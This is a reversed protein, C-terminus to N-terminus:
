RLQPYISYNWEPHFEHPHLNISAMQEDTPRKHLAYTGTDLEATVSLGTKTETGEIFGVVIDYSRLPEGQWNQSIYSFMKHEIDNWKSTGSPYHCVHISLGTADALQQLEWKWQRVRNGNAGGSDCTIMLNKAKPYNRKGEKSYWRRISEVALESTNHDTGVNVYGKNRKIDYVGFPIAKIIQGKQAGETAKVGFDHDKVLTAEGSKRYTAGDNKFNGIKETKKADISTVMDGSMIYQDAQEDIYRFQADRDPHSKTHLAKQNKKLSFKEQWLLRNVPTKTIAYGRRRLEATIKDISLHTWTIHKMPNGSKRIIKDVETKIEPYQDILKKRGGGPRRIVGLPASSDPDALEAQGARLTVATIGTAKVVLSVGGYGLANAEAAAWLRRSRENLASLSL